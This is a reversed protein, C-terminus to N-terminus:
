KVMGASNKLVVNSLIGTDVKDPIHSCFGIGVYFPVEINLQIPDGVQTLPEGAHSVFIAYANGRKELGLRIAGKKKVQVDKISQGKEPRWALHILGAGHLGAMVEKADDDLNQRIILVAKRDFYGAPDPFNIDAALSIDGSMKKWLFRFEDRNYWINYGASNITYQGTAKKYNSSGPVLASGSRAKDM